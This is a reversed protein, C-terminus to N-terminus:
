VGGRGAGAELITMSKHVLMMGLYITSQELVIMM